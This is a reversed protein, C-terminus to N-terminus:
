APSSFRVRRSCRCKPPLPTLTEVTSWLRPTSVMARPKTAPNVPLARSCPRAAAPIGVSKTRRSSPAVRILTLIREPPSVSIM